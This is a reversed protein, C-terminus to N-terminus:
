NNIRTSIEITVSSIQSILVSLIKLKIRLGKFQIQFFIVLRGLVVNFYSVLM